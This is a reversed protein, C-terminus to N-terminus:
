RCRGEVEVDGAGPRRVRVRMLGGTGESGPYKIIRRAAGATSKPKPKLKLGRGAKGTNTSTSTGSLKLRLSLRYM